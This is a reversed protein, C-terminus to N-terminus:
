PKTLALAVEFAHRCYEVNINARREAEIAGIELLIANLYTPDSKAIRECAAESPAKGDVTKSSARTRAEEYTLKKSQEAKLYNIEATLHALRAKMLENNAATADLSAM